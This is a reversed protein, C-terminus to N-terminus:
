NKKNFLENSYFAGLIIFTQIGGLFAAWSDMYLSTLVLAVLAFIAGGISNNM